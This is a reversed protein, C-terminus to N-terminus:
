MRPLKSRLNDQRRQRDEPAEALAVRPRVPAPARPKGFDPNSLLTPIYSTPAHKGTAANLAAMVKAAPHDKLWQRCFHRIGTMPYLDDAMHLTDRVDRTSNAGIPGDQEVPDPDPSPERAHTHAPADPRPDCM